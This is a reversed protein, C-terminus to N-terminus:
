KLREFELTYGNRGQIAQWIEMGPLREEALILIEEKDGKPMRCGLYIAGFVPAPEEFDIFGGLPYNSDTLSVRWEHEYAWNVGKVLLLEAERKGMDIRRVCLMHDVFEGEDVLRPYDHSYRVQKAVLLPVDLDDIANLKFVAGTHASGYHAWMLLNDNEEALCLVRTQLLMAETERNWEFLARRGNEITQQRIIGANKRFEERPISDRNRRFHALTLGFPYTEDFQVDDREWVYTEFRQIILETTAELRSEDIFAYRHDFPDNFDIPCSWRLTHNKIITKAVDKTVYKYFHDRDHYRPM